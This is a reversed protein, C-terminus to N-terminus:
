IVSEFYFFAARNRRNSSRRCVPETSSHVQSAQPLSGIIEGIYSRIVGVPADCAVGEPVFIGQADGYFSYHAQCASSLGMVSSSSIRAMQVSFQWNCKCFKVHAHILERSGENHHGALNVPQTPVHLNIRM